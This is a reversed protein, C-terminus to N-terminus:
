FNSTFAKDLGRSKYLQSELNNDTQKQGIQPKMYGEHTHAIGRRGYPSPNQSYAGSDGPSDRRGRAREGQTRQGSTAIRGKSHNHSGSYPKGQMTRQQQPAQREQALLYIDGSSHSQSSEAHIQPNQLQSREPYYKMSDNENADSFSVTSGNFKAAVQPQQLSIASNMQARQYANLSMIPPQSMVSNEGTANVGENQSYMELGLPMSGKRIGSQAGPHNGTPPNPMTQTHLPGRSRSDRFYDTSVSSSSINNSNLNADSGAAASGFSKNSQSSFNSLQYSPPKPFGNVDSFPNKEYAFSTKSSDDQGFTIDAMSDDKIVSPIKRKHMMSKRKKREEKEYMKMVSAAVISKCGQSYSLHTRRKISPVICIASLILILYKMSFFVWVVFSFTMFSLLIAERKNTQAIERIIAGINSSQFSNSISYAITAGNLVQRPTDSLLWLFMDYHLSQYILLALWDHLSKTTINEYICFREYSRLSNFERAVAHLYSSIVYNKHFIHIGTAISFILFIIYLGICVTFIIRYVLIPVYSISHYDDWNSLVYIQVLTYIDSALFLFRLLTTVLLAIFDIVIWLGYRNYRHEGTIENFTILTPDKGVLQEQLITM